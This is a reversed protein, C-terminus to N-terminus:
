SDKERVMMQKPHAVETNEYLGQKNRVAEFIEHLQKQATNPLLYNQSLLTSIEHEAEDYREAKYLMSVFSIALIGRTRVKSEPIEYFAKREFVSAEAYLKRAEKKNGSSLLMSAQSALKQANIHNKNLM